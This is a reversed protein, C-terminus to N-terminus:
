VAIGVRTLNPLQRLWGFQTALCCVDIKTLSPLQPLLAAAEDDTPRPLTTIEQWQLQHPQALLRRLLSTPMPWVDLQHLRPMARLEAVQADSLLSARNPAHIALYRLQPLSALSAFSLQDNLSPLWVTFSELLRLRGIALLAANVDAAASGGTIRLDLKLLGPPFTLPGPTPTLQLDCTLECLQPMLRAVIFLSDATLPVRSGVLGLQTVHRGMASDAISRLPASVKKITLQLSAMSEVAALWSKPAQLATALETQSLWGFISELAHRYLRSAPSPNTSDTSTASSSSSSQQQQQQQQQQQSLSRASRGCRIRRAKPM